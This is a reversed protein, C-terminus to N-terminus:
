RLTSSSIYNYNKELNSLKLSENLGIIGRINETGSRKNWEQEGGYIIKDLPINKKLYIAGIGKPGHIKHACFTVIDALLTPNEGIKGITQVSDSHLLIDGLIEKIDKLPQIVGTENNAHMISVLKTNKKIIKKLHNLDILGEKDVKLQSVEVNKLSKYTEIVSHHETSSFICHDNEKVIGRIALNNSETGSSTFILETSKCGLINSISGRANEVAIRVKQGEKHVSSPNGYFEKEFAIMKDLIKEDIKTTSSNDLYVVM